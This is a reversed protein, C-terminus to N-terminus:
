SSFCPKIDYFIMEQSPVEMVRLAPKEYQVKIFFYM